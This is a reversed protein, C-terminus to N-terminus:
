RARRLTLAGLAVFAAGAAALSVLAWWAGGDSGGDPGRGTDGLGTVQTTASPTTGPAPTSGDDTPQAAPTTPTTSGTVQFAANMNSWHGPVNCLLIYSGATLNLTLTDSGGGPIVPTSGAVDVQSLDVSNTAAVIPLQNAPLDTDIVLFDHGIGGANSVAFTVEGEPASTTDVTLDFETSTIPDTMTVNVTTQASVAGAGLLLTVFLASALAFLALRLTPLM